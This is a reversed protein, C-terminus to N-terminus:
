RLMGHPGVILVYAQGGRSAVKVRDVGDPGTFVAGGQPWPRRRYNSLCAQLERDLIEAKAKAAEGAGMSWSCIAYSVGDYDAGLSCDSAGAPVFVARIRYNGDSDPDAKALSVFRNRVDGVAAHVFDCTTAKGALAPAAGAALLVGLLCAKLM